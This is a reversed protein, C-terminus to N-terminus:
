LYFINWEMHEANSNSSNDIYNCRSIRPSMSYYVCLNNGSSDTLHKNNKDYIDITKSHTGGYMFKHKASSCAVISLYNYGESNTNVGLDLCLNSPVGDNGYTGQSLYLYSPETKSTIHWTRYVASVGNNTEFLHFSSQATLSPAGLYYQSSPMTSKFKVSIYKNTSTQASSSKTTTKTKTVTSTPAIQTAKYPSGEYRIWNVKSNGNNCKYVRPEGESYYLCIPAKDIMYPNGNRDYVNITYSSSKGYLFKYQAKDCKVIRLFNYDGNKYTTSLDLCYGSFDGANGNKGKSLYMLSPKTISDFM